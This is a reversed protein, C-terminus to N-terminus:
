DIRNERGETRRHIMRAISREIEEPVKHVRPPLGRGDKALHELSLAQLAFSIDMIEAPHGDAVSLNVLEGEGLLYVARGDAFRYARVGPRVGEEEVSIADLAEKIILDGYAFTEAPSACWGLDFHSGPVVSLHWIRQSSSAM